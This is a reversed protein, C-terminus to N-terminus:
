APQIKTPYSVSADKNATTATSQFSTTFVQLKPM